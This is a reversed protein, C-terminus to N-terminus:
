FASSSANPLLRALRALRTQGAEGAENRYVSVVVLRFLPNATALVNEECVLAVNGQDCPARQLGPAPWAGSLQLQALRNSASWQALTRERMGASSDALMGTARLCAGLAVAVIVLAVLVEILTFGAGQRSWRM